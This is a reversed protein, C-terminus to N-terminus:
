GATVATWATQMNGFSLLVNMGFTPTVPQVVQREMRLAM